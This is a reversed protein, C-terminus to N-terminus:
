KLEEVQFENVASSRLFPPACLFDVFNEAFRQTRQEEATFLRM